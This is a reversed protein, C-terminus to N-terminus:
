SRADTACIASIDSAELVAQNAGRRAVALMAQGLRATALVCNPFIVRLM